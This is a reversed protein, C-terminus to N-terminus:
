KKKEIVLQALYEAAQSPTLEFTGDLKGDMATGDRKLPECGPSGAPYPNTLVLNGTKPNYTLEYAHSKQVGTESPVDHRTGAIIIAGKRAAEIAQKVLEEGRAVTINEKKGQEPLESPASSENWIERAPEGTIAELPERPSGGGSMREAPVASQKTDPHLQQHYQAYAKEIIAAQRNNAYSALEAETPAATIIPKEVGPFKVSYTGDKNEQIMRGVARPDRQSLARLPAILFCDDTGGQSIPPERGAAQAQRAENLRRALDNLSPSLGAVLREQRSSAERLDEPCIRGKRYDLEEQTLVGPPSAYNGEFHPKTPDYKNAVKDYDDLLKQFKAKKEPSWDGSKIAKELEAREIFGDNNADLDKFDGKIGSIDAHKQAQLVKDPDSAASALAELAKKTLGPKGDGDRDGFASAISQGTQHLRSAYVADAGKHAPNEVQEALEDEDLKGDHNKDFRDFNEQAFKLFGQASVKVPKCDSGAQTSKSAYLDGTAGFDLFDSAGGTKQGTSLDTRSTQEWERLWASHNDPVESRRGDQLDNLVLEQREVM